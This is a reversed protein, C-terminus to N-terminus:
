FCAVLVAVAIGGVIQRATLRDADTAAKAPRGTRRRRQPTYATADSPRTPTHPTDHSSPDTAMPAQEPM